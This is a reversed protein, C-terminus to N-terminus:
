AAPPRKGAIAATVVSDWPLIGRWMSVVTRELEARRDLLESGLLRSLQEAVSSEVNAVPPPAAVDLNPMLAVYQAGATGRGITDITIPLRTGALKAHAEGLVGAAAVLRRYLQPLELTAGDALWSRLTPQVRVVQWLRWTGDGVAALVVCRSGSLAADLAAHERAWDVLRRRGEDFDVYTAFVASHVRWDTGVGAAWDGGAARHVVLGSMAAEHLVMRGEVPPWIAGTPVKTNPLNPPPGSPGNQEGGPSTAPPGIPLQELAALLVEASEALGQSGMASELDADSSEGGLKERIRDLAIRVALVFTERIGLGSEASSETLATQAFDNGLAARVEERPVATPLDRKNAQVIVGVPPEGERGLMEVMEHISAVSRKMADRDGTDAVFVVVDASEILVRRRAALEVQGPVSVIQCRIQRGEFLGGTYEMWDFFVTRGESEAPTEVNRMLSKALARVSTTKGAFPPGDYVIRVVVANGKVDVFAM